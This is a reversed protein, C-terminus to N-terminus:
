PCAWQALETLPVFRVDSANVGISEMGAEVDESSGHFSVQWQIESDGLHRRMEVLYPLDVHSLSHGMIFIEKIGSLSQFFPQHTEIVRATPKFTETFYQDVIEYGGIVRVDDSEPDINHSFYDAPSREWGHGLILQDGERAAAGHIHLVSADPIGYLRQLTDTYNFTLYRADRRLPLLKNIVMAPSPIVLQRVWEGFRRRLTSSIAEVVRRIEYEYDHHGSDSWDDAGYSALYVGADDILSHADLHALRAEFEWWFDDDVSFYRELEDYTRADVQKLYKGFAAYSSQVGHHLDFGNGVIYLIQGGPIEPSAHSSSGREHKTYM